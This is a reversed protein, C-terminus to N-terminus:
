QNYTRWNKGQKKDERLQDFWESDNFEKLGSEKAEQESIQTFRLWDKGDSIAAIIMSESQCFSFVRPSIHRCLQLFLDQVDDPCYYYKKLEDIGVNRCERGPVFAGFDGNGDTLITEIIYKKM